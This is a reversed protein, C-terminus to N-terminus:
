HPPGDCLRRAAGSRVARAAAVVLLVLLVVDLLAGPLKTRVALGLGDPLVLLALGLTAAALRRVWRPDAVGAALVAFPVLAYWPYFVPSLVALAAFTVGCATVVVRRAATRSAPGDVTVEAVGTPGASGPDVGASGPGVGALGPDVGASGAPEVPGPMRVARLTARGARFLLLACIGALAVLGALRAVAVAPDVAAPQGLLRFLYGVAMGVGTPLSTWQVLSGTGSLAGVWGLGLDTALSLVAFTLLVGGGVAAAARRVARPRRGLVALMIAFPVAVLATVKVAVALGLLVGAVASWGVGTRDTGVAPRGGAGPGGVPSGTATGDSTVPRPGDATPPRDEDPTRGPDAVLALAAVVLGIVLGDNHAGSVLHVAVLPSLLGLWLATRPDVGCARAM